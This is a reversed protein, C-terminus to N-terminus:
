FKTPSKLLISSSWLSASWLKQLARLLHLSASGWDSRDPSSLEAPVVEVHWYLRAPSLQATFFHSASLWLCREVRLVLNMSFYPPYIGVGCGLLPNLGPVCVVATLLLQTIAGDCGQSACLELVWLSHLFILLMHEAPTLSIRDKDKTGLLNAIKFNRLTVWSLSGLKCTIEASRIVMFKCSTTKLNM